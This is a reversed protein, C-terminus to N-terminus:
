VLSKRVPGQRQRGAAWTLGLLGACGAVAIGLLVGTNDRPPASSQVENFFATLDQQEQSTLPRTNFIPGMTPFYLTKLAVELGVPGLKASAGTLDPGLSGGNPFRIGAIRHCAACAPGGNQFRAAGTFLAKGALVSAQPTTSSSRVQEAAAGQTVGSVESLMVLSWLTPIWFAMESRKPRTEAMPLGENVPPTVQRTLRALGSAALRSSVDSARTVLAM